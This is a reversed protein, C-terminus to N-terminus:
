KKLKSLNEQSELQEILDPMNYILGKHKNYFNYFIPKLIKIILWYWLSKKAMRGVQKIRIPSGFSELTDADQVVQHSLSRKKNLFGTSSGVHHAVISSILDTEKKVLGAQLFYKKSIRRGRRNELVLQILGPKYFAFSIDHWAAALILIKENLGSQLNKALLKKIKFVNAAVRECHSWDHVPDFSKKMLEEAQNFLFDFQKETM